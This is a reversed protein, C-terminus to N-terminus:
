AAEAGRAAVDARRDRRRLLRRWAEVAAGLLARLTLTAAGLVLYESVVMVSIVAGVLRWLLSRREDGDDYM